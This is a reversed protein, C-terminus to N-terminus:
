IVGVVLVRNRDPVVPRVVVSSGKIIAPLAADTITNYRKYALNIGIKSNFAYNIISIFVPLSVKSRDLWYSGFLLVLISSRPTEFLAKRTSILKTKSIVSKKFPHIAHLM